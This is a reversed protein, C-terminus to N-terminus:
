IPLALRVEDVIDLAHDAVVDLLSQLVFSADESERILCHPDSLIREFVESIRGHFGPDQSFSM